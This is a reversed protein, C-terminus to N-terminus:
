TRKHFMLTVLGQCTQWRLLSATASVKFFPFQKLSAVQIVEVGTYGSGTLVNVLTSKGTGVDGMIVVCKRSEM